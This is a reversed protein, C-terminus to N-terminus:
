EGQILQLDVQANQEWDASVEDVLVGQQRKQLQPTPSLVRALAARRTMLTHGQQRLAMGGGGMQQQQQDSAPLPADRVECVFLDVDGDQLFTPSETTIPIRLLDADELVEDRLIYICRVRASGTMNVIVPVDHFLTNPVNGHNTRNVHRAWLLYITGTIGICVYVHKGYCVAFKISGGGGETHDLSARFRKNIQKNLSALSWFRDAYLVHKADNTRDEHNPFLCVLKNAKSPIDSHWYFEYPCTNFSERVVEHAFDVRKTMTSSQRLLQLYRGDALLEAIEASLQVNQGSFIYRQQMQKKKERKGDCASIFRGM